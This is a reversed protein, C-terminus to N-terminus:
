GERHSHAQTREPPSEQAAPVERRVQAHNLMAVLASGGVINGLLVPVVYDILYFSFSRDGALVLYLVEVSGAVIHAFDGLAVVYTILLIVILQASAAGPLLWVMLGILWDALVAKAFLVVFSGAAAAEGIAIFDDHLNPDFIPVGAALAAFLGAGVLNALLVVGWLRALALSTARDRRTLVPIVGTLTNETFLQQRGLVVIVFGTTYGFSEVLPRWVADPLYHHLLGEVVLSFGMSLGAALGSWALASVSRALEEEGEERIIEHVLAAKLRMADSMQRREAESLDAREEFEAPDPM